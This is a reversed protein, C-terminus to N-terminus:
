CTDFSLNSEFIHVLSCTGFSSAFTVRAFAAARFVLPLSIIITFFWDDEYVFGNFVSSGGRSPNVISTKGKQDDTCTWVRLPASLDWDSCSSEVLERTSCSSEFPHLAFYGLLLFSKLFISPDTQNM